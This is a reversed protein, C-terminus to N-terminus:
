VIDTGIQLFYARQLNGPSGPQNAGSTSVAAQTATNYLLNGINNDYIKLAYQGLEENAWYPPQRGLALCLAHTPKSYTLYVNPIGISKVFQQAKFMEAKDFVVFFTQSMALWAAVATTTVLDSVIIQNPNVAPTLALISTVDIYNASEYYRNVLDIQNFNVSFTNVGTQTLVNNDIWTFYGGIVMAVTKNTIDQGLNISAVGTAPISYMGPTVPVTHLSCVNAFNWIGIQNQNSQLLSKTADKIMVGNVGDTSAQHYYGNVNFLCTNFLTQYDVSPVTRSIRVNPMQRVDAVLPIANTNDVADARFGAQYADAFVASRLSLSFGTPTTPLTTNGNATILDAFYGPYTSYQNAIDSFLLYVNTNTGPPTLTVQVIRFHAYLQAVTYQTLDIVQWRQNLGMPVGIASVITYM